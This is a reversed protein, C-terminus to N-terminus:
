SIYGLPVHIIEVQVATEVDFALHSVYEPDIDITKIHWLNGDLPIRDACEVTSLPIALGRGDAKIVAEKITWYKFFERRVDPAHKIAQLERDTLHEQFDDPEIDRIQEIDVGVRGQTSLACIVYAGSHAINFDLDFPLGPRGSESRSMRELVSSSIGLRQLGASLLYRGLLYAQSDQWRVYQHAERYVADPLQTQLFAGQGPTFPVNNQILM